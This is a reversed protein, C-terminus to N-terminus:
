SWFDILRGIADKFIEPAKIGLILNGNKGLVFGVEIEFEEANNEGGYL